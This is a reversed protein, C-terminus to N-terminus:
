VWEGIGPVEPCGSWGLRNRCVWRSQWGSTRRWRCWGCRCFRRRPGKRHSLPPFSWIRVPRGVVAYFRAPGWSLRCRCLCQEAPRLPCTLTNVYRFIFSLFIKSIIYCYTRLSSAHTKRHFKYMNANGGRLKSTCKRHYLTCNVVGNATSWFSISSKSM